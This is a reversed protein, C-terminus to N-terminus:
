KLGLLAVIAEVTRAVAGQNSRQWDRAATAMRVRLSQDQLLARAAATLEAGDRVSKAAGVGILEKSIDRFNSMEPGFLICKGLTASEVPTQGEHHPPLSKGVFVVDALQTLKRLEGTTDGVAVEVPGPAKGRSRLHFRVGEASLLAEIDGRREAHRPVLLLHVNVGDTRLRRWVELLIKEEGPWTSSGLLVPGAELGLEHRLNEKEADALTEIVLDLKLNGLSRVTERSFGLALLREADQRTGPLWLTVGGFLSRTVVGFRRMRRLGRDSIRANVCVVPVGLSAAQRLHEPWREGETLIFADPEIRRWARWVFWWFDIPFYGMGVVQGTYRECALKYGTSTTTSLYIEIDKRSSLAKLLPGIALMEGVSVAQIWLRKVGPRKAPLPPVVGFRQAFGRGYGGRRWMRRLYYPSALLLAPLFLVRYLWIM